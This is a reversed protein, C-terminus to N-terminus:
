RECLIEYEQIVYNGYTDLAYYRVRYVGVESAVFANQVVTEYCNSPTICIVYELNEVDNVLFEITASPLKVTENLKVTEPVEGDLMIKPKSDLTSTVVQIWEVSAGRSDKVFYVIKYNGIKDLSFTYSTNPSLEKIQVDNLDYVYEKNGDTEYVVSVNFETLDSLVDFALAPFTTIKTGVAYIGDITGGVVINPALIDEKTDKYFSQGNISYLRLESKKSTDDKEISMSVYVLDSFGEFVKGNDYYDPQIILSNSVVDYFAKRENDYMIHIIDQVNGVLSGSFALSTKNGIRMMVNPSLDDTFLEVELTKSSDAIDIFTLTITKINSKAEKEDVGINNSFKMEMNASSVPQIFQLLSNDATTTWLSHNTKLEILANEDCIFYRDMLFLTQTIPRGAVSITSQQYVTRVPINQSFLIEKEYKYELLTYEVNSGSTETEIAKPFAITSDTFLVGDIYVDAKQKEFSKNYDVFWLDQITYSNGRIFGVYHPVPSVIVTNEPKQIEAQYSYIQRQGVSDTTVYEVTYIGPVDAKYEEVAGGIEEGNYYVTCTIDYNGLANLVQIDKIPYVAIYHGAEGVLYQELSDQDFVMEMESVSDLVNVFVTQTSSYGFTDTVFYEILYEGNRPTSFRNKSISVDYKEGNYLYYAKKVIHEIENGNFDYAQAEPLCMYGGKVGILEQNSVVNITPEQTGSDELASIDRGAINYIVMDAKMSTLGMLMFSIYVENSTFGEWASSLTYNIDDFDNIISQHNADGKHLSLLQKSENDYYISVKSDKAYRSAEIKGSASHATIFGYGTSWHRVQQNNLVITSNSVNEVGILEQGPASARIYTWQGNAFTAYITIKNNLDKSDTLYIYIGSAAKTTYALPDVSFEIIPKAEESLVIKGNENYKTQNVYTDIDIPQTYEVLTASQSVSVVMGNRGTLRSSGMKYSVSDSVSTFLDGENFEVYIKKEFAFQEGLCEASATISYVGTENAQFIKNSVTKGGPYRVSFDFPVREGKVIVYLNSCDIVDDKNYQELVGTAVLRTDASIVTCYYSEYVGGGLEYIIEYEGAKEFKYSIGSRVGEYARLTVENRKLTLTGVKEGYHLLGKSLICKPLIVSDGQTYEKNLDWNLEYHYKPEEEYVLISYTKEGIQGNSNVASYVVTYQGSTTPVFYNVDKGVESGNVDYVSVSVNETIGDIIDYAYGQPIEYAQNLIADQEIKAYISPKSSGDMILDDLQYDNIKYFLVSGEDGLIGTISFSVRYKDFPMMKQDLMRGDLESDTMRWVLYQTDDFGGVYVSMDDPNFTVCIRDTEVQTYQASENVVTTLGHEKGNVYYVGARTGDFEVYAEMIDSHALVVKFSEGLSDTFEIEFNQASYANNTKLPLYDVSFSGVVDQKWEIKEQVDSSTLRIGKDLYSLGDDLSIPEITMASPKFLDTISLSDASTEIRDIAIAAFFSSCCCVSLFAIACKKNKM